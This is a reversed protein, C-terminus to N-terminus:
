LDKSFTSLLNKLKHTSRSQQQSTQKQHPFLNLLCKCCLTKYILLKGEGDTSVMQATIIILSFIIPVTRHQITSWMQACQYIFADSLQSPKPKKNNLNAKQTSKGNQEHKTQIQQTLNLKKLVFDLSQSTDLTILVKSRWNTLRVSLGAAANKSNNNRHPVTFWCIKLM